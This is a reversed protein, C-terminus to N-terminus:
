AVVSSSEVIVALILASPSEIEVLYTFLRRRDLLQHRLAAFLRVSPRVIHLFRQFLVVLALQLFLESRHVLALESADVHEGPDSLV